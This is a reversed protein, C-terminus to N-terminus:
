GEIDIIYGKYPHAQKYASNKRKKDNKYFQQHTSQHKTFNPEAKQENNPVQHRIMNQQQENEASLHKQVYHSQQDIQEQIKGADQTRPLAIQLEVLKLSM